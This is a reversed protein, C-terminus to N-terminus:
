ILNVVFNVGQSLSLGSHEWVAQWWLGLHSGEKLCNGSFGPPGRFLQLNIKNEETKKGYLPKEQRKSHLEEKDVAELPQQTQTEEVGPEITYGSKKERLYCSFHTYVLKQQSEQEM